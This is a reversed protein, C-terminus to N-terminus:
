KISHLFLIIKQVISDTMNRELSKEYQNLEFKNTHNNYNFIEKFSKQKKLYHASATIQVNIEMSYIKPDGKTDKSAIVRNKSSNIEVYFNKEKKPANKYIKLRREIMSSINKDGSIKINIISFNNKDTSFLPEYGCSSLLLFISILFKKKLNNM